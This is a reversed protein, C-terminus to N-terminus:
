SSLGLKKEVYNFAEGSSDWPQRSGVTFIENGDSDTEGTSVQPLVPNFPWAMTPLDSTDSNSDELGRHALIKSGDWELKTIRQVVSSEGASDIVTFDQGTFYKEM